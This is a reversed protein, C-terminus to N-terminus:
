EENFPRQNMLKRLAKSTKLHSGAKRRLAQVVMPNRPPPVKIKITTKM